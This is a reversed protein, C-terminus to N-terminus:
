LHLLMVPQILGHNLLTLIAYTSLRTTFQHSLWFIFAYNWFKENNVKAYELRESPASFDNSSFTIMTKRKEFKGENQMLSVM